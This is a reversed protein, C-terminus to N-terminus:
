LFLVKRMKVVNVIRHSKSSSMLYVCTDFASGFLVISQLEYEVFINKLKRPERKLIVVWELM